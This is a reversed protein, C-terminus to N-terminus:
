LVSINYTPFVVLSTFHCRSIPTVTDFYLIYAMCPPPCLLPAPPHHVKLVVVSRNMYMYVARGSDTITSATNVFSDSESNSDFYKLLM